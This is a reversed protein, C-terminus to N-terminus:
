SEDGSKTCNIVFHKGFLLANSISETLKKEEAAFRKFLVVKGRVSIVQLAFGVLTLKM